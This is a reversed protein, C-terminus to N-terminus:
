EYCLCPSPDDEDCTCRGFELPVSRDAKWLDPDTVLQDGPSDDPLPNGVLPKENMRKVKRRADSRFKSARAGCISASIEGETPEGM